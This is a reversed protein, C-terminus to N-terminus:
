PTPSSGRGGGTGRDQMTGPDTTGRQDAGTSAGGGGLRSERIGMSVVVQDGTEFGSLEGPPLKLELNEGGAVDISVTGSSRDLRKVTGSVKHSCDGPMAAAQGGVGTAGPSSTGAQGSPSRGPLGETGRSRDQAGAVGTALALGAAAALWRGTHMM